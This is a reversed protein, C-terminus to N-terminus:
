GVLAALLGESVVRTRPPFCRCIRTDNSMSSVVVGSVVDCMFSEGDLNSWQFMYDAPIRHQTTQRLSLSLFTVLSASGHPLALINSQERSVTCNLEFTSGSTTSGTMPALWGYCTDHVRMRARACTAGGEEWDM